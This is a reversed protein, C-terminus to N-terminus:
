GNREQMLKVREDFATLHITKYEEDSVMAGQKVAKIYGSRDNFLQYLLGHIDAGWWEQHKDHWYYWDYMGVTQGANVNIICVVGLGPAQEQTGDENSFTTNNDYYIKWDIM